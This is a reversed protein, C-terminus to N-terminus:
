EPLGAKRLGEQWLTLHEPRRILRPTFTSVRLEPHIGRLHTMARQVEESRGALAHGAATAASATVWNPEERLAREAWKCAEDLRGALFHAFGTGAQMHYLGPDLPSLRMANALHAIAIDTPV